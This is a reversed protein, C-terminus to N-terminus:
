CEHECSLLLILLDNKQNLMAFVSSVHSQSNTLLVILLIGRLTQPRRHWHRKDSNYSLRWSALETTLPPKPPQRRSLTSMMIISLQWWELKITVPTLVVEPTMLSSVLLPDQHMPILPSIDPMTQTVNVHYIYIDIYIYSNNIAKTEKTTQENSYSSQM